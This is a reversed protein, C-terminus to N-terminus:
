LIPKTDRGVSSHRFNNGLDIDEYPQMNDGIKNSQIKNKTGKQISKSLSSLPMRINSKLSIHRGSRKNSYKISAINDEDSSDFKREM